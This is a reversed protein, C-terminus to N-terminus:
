FKEKIFSVLRDSQAKNLKVVIDETETFTFPEIPKEGKKQKKFINPIAIGFEAVNPKKEFTLYINNFEDCGITKLEGIDMRKTLQIKRNTITM